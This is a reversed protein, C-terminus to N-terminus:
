RAGSVAASASRGRGAVSSKGADYDPSDRVAGAMRAPGPLGPPREETGLRLRDQRGVEVNVRHHQAAPVHQEDDLMAVARSARASPGSVAPDQSQGILEAMKFDVPPRGSRHPYTWHWRVLRKHWRPLTGPTVLRGM